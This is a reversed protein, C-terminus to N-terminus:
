LHIPPKIKIKVRVLFLVNKFPVSRLGHIMREAVWYIPLDQSVILAQKRQESVHQPVVEEEEEVKEEDDDLIVIHGKKLDTRLDEKNGGLDFFEKLTTATKYVEYRKYPEYGKMKPNAEQVM